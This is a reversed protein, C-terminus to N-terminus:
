RFRVISETHLFPLHWPAALLEVGEVEMVVLLAAHIPVMPVVFVNNPLQLTMIGLRDRLSVDLFHPKGPTM